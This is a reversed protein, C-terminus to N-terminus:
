PGPQMPIGYVQDIIDSACTSCTGSSPAGGTCQARILEEASTRDTGGIQLGKAMDILSQIEATTKGPCSAKVAAVDSSSPLLPFGGCSMASAALLTALITLGSAACTQKTMM